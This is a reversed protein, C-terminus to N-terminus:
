SRSGMAVTLADQKMIIVVHITGQFSFIDTNVKAQFEMILKAEKKAKITAKAEAVRANVHRM